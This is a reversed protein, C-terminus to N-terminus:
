RKQRRRISTAMDRTTSLFIESYGNHTHLTSFKPFLNNKDLRHRQPYQQVNVPPLKPNWLLTSFYPRGHIWPLRDCRSKSRSGVDQSVTSRLRYLTQRGANPHVQTDLVSIRSRHQRGESVMKETWRYKRHTTTNQGQKPLNSPSSGNGTERLESM